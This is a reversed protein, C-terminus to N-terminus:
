CSGFRTMSGGACCADRVWIFHSCIVFDQLSLASASVTDPSIMFHNTELWVLHSEDHMMM